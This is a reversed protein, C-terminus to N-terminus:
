NRVWTVHQTISRIASCNVWIELNKWIKELNCTPQLSINTLYDLKLFLFFYKKEM